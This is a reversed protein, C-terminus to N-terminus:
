VNHDVTYVFSIKIGDMNPPNQNGIHFYAM